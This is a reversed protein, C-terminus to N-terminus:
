SQQKLKFESYGRVADEPTDYAGIQVMRGRVRTQAAWKGKAKSFYIGSM